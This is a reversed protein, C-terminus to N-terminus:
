LSVTETLLVIPGVRPSNYHYLLPMEEKLWVNFHGNAKAGDSLQKFVLGVDSEQNPYICLLPGNFVYSIKDLNIYDDIFVVQSINTSAM